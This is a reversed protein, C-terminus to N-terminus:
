QAMEGAGSSDKPLVKGRLSKSPGASVAGSTAEEGERGVMCLPYGM